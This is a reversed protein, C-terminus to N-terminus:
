HLWSTATDNFVGIDNVIERRFGHLCLVAPLWRECRGTRSPMKLEMYNNEHLANSKADTTSKVM